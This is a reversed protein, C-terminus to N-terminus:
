IFFLDAPQASKEDILDQLKVTSKFNLTKDDSGEHYYHGVMFESTQLDERLNSASIIIQNDVESSACFDKITKQFQYIRESELGKNEIDDLLTFRPLLFKNDTVSSMWLSLAFCSKIYSMSSAAYNSREDVFLRNKEFNVEIAGIQKLDDEQGVDEALIEKMRDSIKNQAETIKNANERDIDNIQNTLANIKENLINKRQIDNYLKESLELKKETEEIEKKLYGIDETIKIFSIENSSIANNLLTFEKQYKRKQSSLSKCTERISAIKKLRENQIKQSEQIQSLLNRKLKDLNYKKSSNSMDSKCLYCSTSDNNYEVESFCVPCISIEMSDIYQSTIESDELRKLKIELYKIFDDSDKQEYELNILESTNKEISSSIDKIKNVLDGLSKKNDDKMTDKYFDSKLREFDQLKNNLTTNQEDLDKQFVDPRNIKDETGLFKFAGDLYNSVNKYETIKTKLENKLSYYNVNYIGCMLDGIVKRKAENDFTENRFIEFYPTRQDFYMLRLCSNMTISSETELTKVEPIGLISFIQNSFSDKNDTARYGYKKWGIDGCSLASIFDGEYINMSTSGSVPDTIDRKFTYIENNINVEAYVSTCLKLEEKWEEEMLCGGLIYFIMDMICTKGYSNKGYIVNLGKHFKQNYVVQSNRTIVLQNLILTPRFLTM